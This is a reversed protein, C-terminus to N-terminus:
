MMRSETESLVSQFSEYSRQDRLTRNVNSTSMYGAGRVPGPILLRSDVNDVDSTQVNRSPDLFSESSLNRYHTRPSLTVEFPYGHHDSIGIRSNDAWEGEPPSPVPYFGDNSDPNPLSGLRHHSNNARHHLLPPPPPSPALLLPLTGSREGRQANRQSFTTVNYSTSPPPPPSDSRAILVEEPLPSSRYPPSSLVPFSGTNNSSSSANRTHFITYDPPSIDAQAHVPPLARRANQTPSTSPDGQSASPPPPPLPPPLPTYHQYPSHKSALPTGDPPTPLPLHRRTPPSTAEGSATAPSASTQLKNSENSPDRLVQHAPLPPAPAPYRPAPPTTRSSVKIRSHRERPPTKPPPSIPRVPSGSRPQLPSPPIRRSPTTHSTSSHSYLTFDDGSGSIIMVQHSDLNPRDNDNTILHETERNVNSDDFGLDSDDEDDEGDEEHITDYYDYRSTAPASETTATRTGSVRYGGRRYNELTSNTQRTRESSADIEFKRPPSISEVPVPAARWPMPLLIFTRRIGRVLRSNKWLNKGPLAWTPKSSEVDFQTSSSSLRVHGTSRRSSGSSFMELSEANAETPRDIVWERDRNATKIKRTGFGNRFGRDVLVRMRLLISPSGKKKSRWILLGVIFVASVVIGVVVPVLIQIKNWKSPSNPAAAISLAEAIDFTENATLSIFTWPPLDMSNSSDYQVTVIQIGQQQCTDTWNTSPVTSNADGSSFLCASWVNFYVNTCTCQNPSPFRPNLIATDRTALSGSCGEVEGKMDCPTKGQGNNLSSYDQHADADADVFSTLLSILALFFFYSWSM